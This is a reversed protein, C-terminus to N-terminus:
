PRLIQNYVLVQRYQFVVLYSKGTILAPLLKLFGIVEAPHFGSITNCCLYPGTITEDLTKVRKFVWELWIGKKLNIAITKLWKVLKGLAPM